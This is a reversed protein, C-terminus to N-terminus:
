EEQHWWHFHNRGAACLPCDSNKGPRLPAQRRGPPAPRPRARPPLPPSPEQRRPQRRRLALPAAGGRLPEQGAPRLQGAPVEGHSCRRESPRLLALIPPQPIPRTNTLVVVQGRGGGRHIRPISCTSTINTRPVLPFLLFSIALQRGQGQKNVCQSRLNLLSPLPTNPNLIQFVWVSRSM